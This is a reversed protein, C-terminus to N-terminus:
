LAKEADALEPSKGLSKKHLNVFAEPFEKRRGRTQGAPLSKYWPVFNKRREPGERIIYHLSWGPTEKEERFFFGQCGPCLTTCYPWDSFRVASLVAVFLFLVAGQVAWLSSGRSFPREAYGQFGTKSGRGM